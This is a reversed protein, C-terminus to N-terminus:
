KILKEIKKIGELSGCENFKKKSIVYSLNNKKILFSIYKGLDFRQSKINFM